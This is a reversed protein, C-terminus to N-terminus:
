QLSHRVGRTIQLPVAADDRIACCSPEERVALLGQSTDPMAFSQVTAPTLLCHHCLVMLGSGHSLNVRNLTPYTPAPGAGRQSSGAACGGHGLGTTAKCPFPNSRHGEALNNDGPHRNFHVDNSEGATIYSSSSLRYSWAM